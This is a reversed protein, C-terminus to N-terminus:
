WRSGTFRGDLVRQRDHEGTQGQKAEADESWADGIADYRASRLKACARSGSGCQEGTTRGCARDSTGLKCAACDGTGSGVDRV